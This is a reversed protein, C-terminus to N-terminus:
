VDYRAAPNCREKKKWRTVPLKRGTCTKYESLTFIGETSEGSVELKEIESRIDKLCDSHAKVFHDAIMRSDMKIEGNEIKILNNM